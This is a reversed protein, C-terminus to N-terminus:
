QPPLHSAGEGQEPADVGRGYLLDAAGSARDRTGDPAGTADEAAPPSVRGIALYVICGLFNFLLVVVVWVWKQGGLVAPRRVIDILCMAVLALEVLSLAVIAVLAGGSFATDAAIGALM